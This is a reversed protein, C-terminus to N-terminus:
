PITTLLPEMSIFMFGTNQDNDNGLWPTKKYIARSMM